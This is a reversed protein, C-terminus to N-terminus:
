ARIIQTGGAARPADLNRLLEQFMGSVHQMRKQMSEMERLYGGGAPTEIGKILQNWNQPLMGSLLPKGTMRQLQKSLQHLDQFLGTNPKLLKFFEAPKQLSKLGGGALKSLDGLPRMAGSVLGKVADGLKFGKKLNQFVGLGTKLFNQVNSAKGLMSIGKGILGVANLGPVFSLASTAVKFINSKFVQKTAKGIAKFGKKFSKGIKKFLSM